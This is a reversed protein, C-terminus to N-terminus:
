FSFTSGAGGAPGDEAFILETQGTMEITVTADERTADLEDIAESDQVAQEASANVLGVIGTNEATESDEYIGSVTFTTTEGDISLGSGLARIGEFFQAGTTTTGSQMTAVLEPDVEGGVRMSRGDIADTLQSAYESNDQLLPANGNSSDIMKEVADRGTIDVDSEQQSVFGLVIAGEGVGVTASAEGGPGIDSVSEADEYLEYGEYEGVREADGEEEISGTIDEASFEGTVAMSGFAAASQEQPAFRGGGVGTIQGIDEAAVPSDSDTEFDERSSEPLYERNEYMQEYDVTGFFRNESEVLSNPDYQWSGSGGAGGDGSCGALGTVGLLAVLGSSKLVDRRTATM